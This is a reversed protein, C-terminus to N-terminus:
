FNLIQWYLFDGVRTYPFRSACLILSMKKCDQFAERKVAFM